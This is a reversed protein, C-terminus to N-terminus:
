TQYEDEEDDILYILVPILSPPAPNQNVTASKQSSRQGHSREVTWGSCSSQGLLHPSLDLLDQSIHPWLFIFHVFHYCASFVWFDSVKTEKVSVQRWWLMRSWAKAVSSCFWTRFFCLVPSHGSLPLCVRQRSHVSKSHRKCTCLCFYFAMVVISLYCFRQNCKLTKNM